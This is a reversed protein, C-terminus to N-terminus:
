AIVDTGPRLLLARQALLERAVAIREQEPWGLPLQALATDAPAQEVAQLLQLGAASLDLPAM